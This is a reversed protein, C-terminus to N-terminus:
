MEVLLFVLKYSQLFLLAQQWTKFIGKLSWFGVATVTCMTKCSFSGCSPFLFVLKM